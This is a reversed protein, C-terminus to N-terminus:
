LMGNVMNILTKVDVDFTNNVGGGGVWCTRLGTNELSPTDANSTDEFTAIARSPVLYTGPITPRLLM